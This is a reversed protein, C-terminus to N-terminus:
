LRVSKPMRIVDLSFLALIYFIVIPTDTMLSNNANLLAFFILFSAKFRYNNSNITKLCFYILICWGITFILGNSLIFNALSNEVAFLNYKDIVLSIGNDMGFLLSKTPLNTIVGLLMYRTNSSDDSAALGYMLRNGFQYKTMLYILIFISGIFFLVIVNKQLRNLEKGKLDKYIVCLVVLGMLYISSRTNFAFLTIYGIIFLGYRYFPKDNATLFFFSLISVLFANQLPHGHLSWARMEYEMMYKVRGEDLFSIDAFYIHKTIVELWAVSCEIFFFLIFANRVFSKKGYGRLLAILIIPEIANNVFVGLMASKNMLQSLVLMCICLIIMLKERLLFKVHKSLIFVLLLIPLTRFHISSLFSTPEIYIGLFSTISNGLFLNLIIYLKFLFDRM